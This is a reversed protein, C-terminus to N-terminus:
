IASCFQPGLPQLNYLKVNVAELMVEYRSYRSAIFWCVGSLACAASTECFYWKCAGGSGRDFWPSANPLARCVPVRPFNIFVSLFWEPHDWCLLLQLSPEDEAPVLWLETPSHCCGCGLFWGLPCIWLVGPGAESTLSGSPIQQKGTCM